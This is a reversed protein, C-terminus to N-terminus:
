VGRERQEERLVMMVKWYVRSLGENCLEVSFCFLSPLGEIGEGWIEILIGKSCYCDVTLIVSYSANVFTRSLWKPFQLSQSTGNNKDWLKKFFTPIKGANPRMYFMHYIVTVEGLALMKHLVIINKCLSHKGRGRRRLWGWYCPSPQLPNTTPVTLAPSPWM